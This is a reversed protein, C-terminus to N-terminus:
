KSCGFPARGLWAPAVGCFSRRTRASNNLPERVKQERDLSVIKNVEHVILRDGFNWALRATCGGLAIAVVILLM